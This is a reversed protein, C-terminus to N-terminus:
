EESRVVEEDEAFPGRPTLLLDGRDAPQAAPARADARVANEEDGRLARSIGGGADDGVVQVRIARGAPEAPVARAARGPERHEAAERPGRADDQCSPARHARAHRRGSAHRERQRLRDDHPAGHRSEIRACACELAVGEREEHPHRVEDREHLLSDSEVGEVERDQTGRVPVMGRHLLARVRVEHLHEARRARRRRPCELGKPIPPIMLTTQTRCSSRPGAKAYHARSASSAMEVHGTPADPRRAPRDARISAIGSPRCEARKRLLSRGINNGFNGRRVTRARPATTESAAAPAGPRRACAGALAFAAAAAPGLSTTTSSLFSTPVTGLPSGMLCTNTRLFVPCASRWTVSTFGEQPQVTGSNSLTMLGPASPFTVRVTSVFFKEPGIEFVARRRVSSGDVGCLVRNRDAMTFGKTSASGYPKKRMVASEPSAAEDSTTSTDSSDSNLGVFISVGLEKRLAVSEGTGSFSSM